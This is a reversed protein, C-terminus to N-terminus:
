IDNAKEDISNIPTSSIKNNGISKPQSKVEFDHNAAIELTNKMFDM